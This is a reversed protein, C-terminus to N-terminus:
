KKEEENELGGSEGSEKGRSELIAQYPIEDDKHRAVETEWFVKATERERKVLDIEQKDYFEVAVGTTVCLVAMIGAVIGVMKSREYRKNTQKPEFGGGSGTGAGAETHSTSSAGRLM